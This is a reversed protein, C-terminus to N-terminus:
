FYRNQVVPHLPRPVATHCTRIAGRSGLRSWQSTFDRDRHIDGGGRPAAASMTTWRWDRGSSATVRRDGRRRRRTADRGCGSVRDDMASRPRSEGHRVHRRVAGHSIVAAAPCTATWRWEGRRPIALSSSPHRPVIHDDRASRQSEGHRHILGRGGEGPFSLFSVSSGSSVSSPLYPKEACVAIM